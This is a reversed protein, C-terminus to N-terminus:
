RPTTPQGQARDPAPEQAIKVVAGDMMDANPNLVITQGDILGSALELTSGYDRAITVPRFHISATQGNRSREVVMVQTGASRIVLASSPILLPPTVRPFHLRVQAYMGPLLAFDRNPVDVETLLTRSAADLAQSSRAVRGTFRRNALGQVVVEAELGPKIATAYNEPVTIYMRVTDTEALRFLSGAGAGTQAGGATIPASTGGAATILSGIDVNRATIMGTFPATVRTYQRTQVLRRVNAESASTNALAAEYAAHKQDLEQGTVASDKALTKWRELDASALRLAARTQALQAQAQQVNQELEPADIEALVQGSRVVSGIDAHWRTVYGSVRAYIAGEHLAQITGPLSLDGGIASRQVTTVQVVPASDKGAAEALLERQVARRPVITVVFLLLLLVVFGIGLTLMRRSSMARVAPAANAAAHHEPTPPLGHPARSEPRDTTTMHTDIERL